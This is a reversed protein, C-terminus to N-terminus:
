SAIADANTEIQDNLVQQFLNVTKDWSFQKSFELASKSYKSLRESDRLL